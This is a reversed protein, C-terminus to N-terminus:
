GVEAERPYSQNWLIEFHSVAINVLSPANSWLVQTFHFKEEPHCFVFVEKRDHISLITNLNGSFVRHEFLPNALIKKAAGLKPDQKPPMYTLFRQKVGKSLSQEFSKSEVILSAIMLGFPGIFEISRESKEITTRAKRELANNEPILVFQNVEDTLNPAQAQRPHRKVLKLAEEQAQGNEENIRQLLLAVAEQLPLAKHRVPVALVKEVLGLKELETLIRYIEQRAIQATKAIETTRQDGLKLMTLYIKAQLM